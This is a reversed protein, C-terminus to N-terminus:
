ARDRLDCAILRRASFPCLGHEVTELFPRRLVYLLEAERRRDLAIPYLQVFVAFGNFAHTVLAYKVRHSALTFRNKRLCGAKSSAISQM